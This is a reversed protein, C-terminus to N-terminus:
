WDTLRRGTILEVVFLGYMIWILTTLTGFFFNAFTPDFYGGFLSRTLGIFGTGLFIIQSVADKFKTLYGLTIIDVLRNFFGGSDVKDVSVDGNVSNNFTNTMTADYSLGYTAEPHLQFYPMGQIIIGIGFNICLMLLIMKALDSM